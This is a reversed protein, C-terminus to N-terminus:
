KEQISVIEDKKERTEGIFELHQQCHLIEQPHKLHPSEKAKNERKKGRRNTLYVPIITTVFRYMLIIQMFQHQPWLVDMRRQVCTTHEISYQWRDKMNTLIQTDENKNIETTMLMKEVEMEKMPVGPSQSHYHNHHCHFRSNVTVLVLRQLWGSRLSTSLWISLM